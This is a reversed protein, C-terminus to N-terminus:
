KQLTSLQQGLSGGPHSTKFNQLSFNNLKAITVALSDGIVLSITSSTTPAINLYDAEKEYDYSLVVNSNKALTSKVNSTIAIKKVGIQNLYPVLNITESTEGSNSILIIVDEKSIIGLDGHVAETGHIFVAPTGLSSFTAAIKKGIIGTKGVGAVIIKGECNQILEIANLYENGVAAELKEIGKLESNIAEKILELKNM